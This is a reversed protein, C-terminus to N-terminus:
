RKGEFTSLVAGFIAYLLPYHRVEPCVPRQNDTTIRSALFGKLFLFFLAMEM